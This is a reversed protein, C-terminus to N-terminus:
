EFKVNVKEYGIQSFLATFFLKANKEADEIIGMNPIAARIDNEGMVLLEHKEEPTFSDRLGTVMSFEEKIEEPPINFSLIEAKPLIVAISKEEKNIKVTEASFKKMNIGAKIYGTCTYIIKRKGYKWWVADDTKIIKKVTYEVTGLEAMETLGQIRHKTLEDQSPGCSVVFALILFLSLKQTKM